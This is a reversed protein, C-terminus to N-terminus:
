AAAVPEPPVVSLAVLKQQLFESLRGSQKASPHVQAQFSVVVTGGEKPEIRYKHVKVGEFVTDSKEDIGHFRLTAGILSGADWKVRGLPSFRLHTLHSPDDVLEGQSADKVYLASRLDPAFLALCGNDTEWVFDLDCALVSEEGNLEIRDNKHVLQVDRQEVEFVVRGAGNGGEAAKRRAM